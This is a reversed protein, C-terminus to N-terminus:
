KKKGGVSDIMLSYKFKRPSEQVIKVGGVVVARWGVSELYKGVQNAFACFKDKKKPKKKQKM